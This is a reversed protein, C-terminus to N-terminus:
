RGVVIRRVDSWPGADVRCFYLGPALSATGVALTHRGPEFTRAAPEAVCRGVVDFVAVHVRAATPLDFALRFSERAPNPV